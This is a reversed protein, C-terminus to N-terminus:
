YDQIGLKRRVFPLLRIKFLIRLDNRYCTRAKKVSTERSKIFSHILPITKEWEIRTRRCFDISNTSILRYNSPDVCINAFSNFLYGTVNNIIYENMTAQNPSIVCLGLSMAELFGMGIGEYKRPQLFYHCKSLTQLYEEHNEFWGDTYELIINDSTVRDSIEFGHCIAKEIGTKELYRVLRKFNFTETRKWIFITNIEDKVIDQYNSKIPVMYQVYLSRINMRTLLIHINKSFSIFKYRGYQKWKESTFTCCADYMPIFVIKNSPINKLVEVSPMIQWFIFVDVDKDDLYSQINIEEPAIYRINVTAFTKLIDIFFVSSKTKSHFIHDYFLINM